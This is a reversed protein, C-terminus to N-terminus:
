FPTKEKELWAQFMLINWLYYQWNRSGSLHERWKETVPAPNFFGERTLCREDLLTEAWERLPGRLWSDIPVGFGMKPREILEKPVYKYLVQRLIWKGQGNRIKMSLPLRWAFEVVRHDLFPVRTELSVGMAARDVKVLIDDPLYMRTDLFMMREIFNTLHPWAASDTLITDPERSNIVVSAPDKWHSILRRYLVEPSEVNIIEALKHIKDGPNLICPSQPLLSSIANWRAPSLATCGMSLVSRMSRPMWGIKKWISRGLFYRPYGCFLEDGADGSLSVTVHRRTLESVLLTPIQSSDSFPEDYLAPLKPIVDLADRPTVYLETHETGLHRAVAKAYEAENYAEENFGITFTRVPRASQAQMLAVITSSDVGGSLFAGLPVDAVMQQSIADRLLSDLQNVAEQETGRFPMALGDDVVQTFSWYPVPVPMHGPQDHATRLTLITGPILKRIGSYITYPAPIYNHRLFLALADRNIEARWAPHARLAKLESGFLFTEGLWGYYLPKEGIRDRMLHLLREQNDWIAIAFMGIFRKVAEEVGWAEFAALVVETDSHGRWSVRVGCAKEELEKRIQQFNYIEGNFVIVYRNSTSQMPQHGAPSLDLISLRRHGLAIGAEPDFWHGADDPGRHIISDTMRTLVNKSDESTHKRSFFGAIGCV